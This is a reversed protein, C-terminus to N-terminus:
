RPSTKSGAEPAQPAGPSSNKGKDTGHSRSIGTSGGTSQTTQSYPPTVAPTNAPNNPRPEYPNPSGPANSTTGSPLRPEQALSWGAFATLAIATAIGCKAFAKPM